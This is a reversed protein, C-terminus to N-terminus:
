KSIRLFFVQTDTSTESYFSQIQIDVRSAIEGYVRFLPKVGRPLLGTRIDVHTFYNTQIRQDNVYIQEVIPIIKETSTDQYVQLLSAEPVLDRDYLSEHTNHLVIDYEARSEYAVEPTFIYYPNIWVEQQIDYIGFSFVREEQILAFAESESLTTQTTAFIFNGIYLSAFGDDHLMWVRRYGYQDKLVSTSPLRLSYNVDGSHLIRGSSVPYVHQDENGGVGITVLYSDQSFRTFFEPQQVPLRWEAHNSALFVCFFVLYTFFRHM